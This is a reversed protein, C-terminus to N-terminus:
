AFDPSYSATTQIAPPLFGSQPLSHHKGVTANAPFRPIKGNKQPSSLQKLRVEVGGHQNKMRNENPRQLSHSKKYPPAGITNFQRSDTVGLTMTMSDAGAQQEEQVLIRDRPQSQDNRNARAAWPMPQKGRAALKNPQKAYIAPYLTSPMAGGKQAVETTHNKMTNRGQAVGETRQM